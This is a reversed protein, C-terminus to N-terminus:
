NEQSRYVGKKIRNQILRLGLLDPCNLVDQELDLHPEAERFLIRLERTHELYVRDGISDFDRHVRHGHLVTAHTRGFIEGIRHYTLGRDRLLHFLFYRPYAQCRRRGKFLELHQDIWQILEPTQM